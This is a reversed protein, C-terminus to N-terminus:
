KFNVRFAVVLSVMPAVAREMDHYDDLFQFKNILLKEANGDVKFRKDQNPSGVHTSGFPIYHLFTLHWDFTDLYRHDWKHVRVAIMFIYYNKYDFSRAKWVRKV